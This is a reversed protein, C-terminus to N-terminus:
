LVIASSFFDTMWSGCAVVPVWKVLCFIVTLTPRTHLLCTWGCDCLFCLWFCIVSDCPNWSWSYLLLSRSYSATCVHYPDHIICPTVPHFDGLLKLQARCNDPKLRKLDSCVIVAVSVIFIIHGCLIVTSVRFLRWEWFCWWSRRRRQSVAFFSWAHFFKHDAADAVHVHRMSFGADFTLIANQRFVLVSTNETRHSLSRQGILGLIFPNGPSM